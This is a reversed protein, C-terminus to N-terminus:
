GKGGNQDSERDRTPRTLSTETRKTRGRRDTRRVCSRATKSMTADMEGGIGIDTVRVVTDDEGYSIQSDILVIDDPDVGREALLESIRRALRNVSEEDNLIRDEM